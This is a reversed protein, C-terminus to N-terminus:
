ESYVIGTQPREVKSQLKRTIDEVDAWILDGEQLQSIVTRLAAIRRAKATEVSSLLISDRVGQM